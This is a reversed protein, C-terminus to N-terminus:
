GQKYFLQPFFGLPEFLSNVSSLIGSRTHPKMQLAVVFKFEGSAVSWQVGLVREHLENDFANIQVSNVREDETVSSLVQHNNPLSKTVHFGARSLISSLGEVMQIGLEIDPVSVLCDDAYFNEEVATAIFPEHDAGYDGAAQRLCFSACSPIKTTM